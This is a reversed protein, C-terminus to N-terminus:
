WAMTRHCGRQFNLVGREHSQYMGEVVQKVLALLILSVPRDSALIDPEFIEPTYSGDHVVLNEDKASEHLLDHPDLYKLAEFENENKWRKYNAKCESSHEVDLSMGLELARVHLVIPLLCVM